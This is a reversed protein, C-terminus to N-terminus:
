QYCVEANRVSFIVQDLRYLTIVWPTEILTMDGSKIHHEYSSIQKVHNGEMHYIENEHYITVDDDTYCIEPNIQTAAMLPLFILLSIQLSKKM